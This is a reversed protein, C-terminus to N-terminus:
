RGHRPLLKLTIDTILAVGIGVLVILVPVFWVATERETGLVDEWGGAAEFAWRGQPVCGDSPLFSVAGSGFVGGLRLGYCMGAATPQAHTLVSVTQDGAPFEYVLLGADDAAAEISAEGTWVSQYASDLRDAETRAEPYDANPVDSFPVLLLAAALVGGLLVLDRVVPRKPPPPAEPAKHIGLRRVRHEVSFRGLDDNHSSNSMDGGGLPCEAAELRWPLGEQDQRECRQAVFM